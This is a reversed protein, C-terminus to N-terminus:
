NVLNSSSIFMNFSEIIEDDIPQKLYTLLENFENNLNLKSYDSGTCILITLLWNVLLAALEEDHNARIYEGVTM